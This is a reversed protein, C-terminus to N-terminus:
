IPNFIFLHLLMSILNYSVESYEITNRVHSNFKNLTVLINSFEDHLEFAHRLAINLKHAACSYRTIKNEIIRLEKNEIPAGKEFDYQLNLNLDIDIEGAITESAYINNMVNAFKM